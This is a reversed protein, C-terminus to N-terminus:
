EEERTYDWLDLIDKWITIVRTNESTNSIVSNGPSIGDSNPKVIGAIYSYGANKLKEWLVKQLTNGSRAEQYLYFIQFEVESEALEAAAQLRQLATKGPKDSKKIQEVAKVLESSLILSLPRISTKIAKEMTDMEFANEEHYVVFDISGQNSNDYRIFDKAKKLCLEAKEALVRVSTNYKAIVLGASLTTPTKESTNSLDKFHENFNEILYNVFKLSNVAPVIMFIDDGGVAICEFTSIGCKELAYYCSQVSATAAVRSFYAMQGLSEIKQIIGGMNNGDAYVVAIEDSIDKLTTAPIVDKKMQLSYRSMFTTKKIRGVQHKQLCSGCLNLKEYKLDLSYHSKRERCSDCIESEEPSVNCFSIKEDDLISSKICGCEDMPHISETLNYVKIRKRTNLDGEINRILEKYKDGFCAIEKLNSEYMVYANKLTPAYKRYEEEIKIALDDPADEPLLAMLNGGGSYIVLEPIWQETAILPAIFEGLWEILVSAGRMEKINNTELYYRKIKYPGGKLIKVKTQELMFDKDADPRCNLCSCNLAYWASNHKERNNNCFDKWVNMKWKNLNMINKDKELLFCFAIFLHAAELFPMHSVNDDSFWPFTSFERSLPKEATPRLLENIRDPSDITKIIKERTKALQQESASFVTGTISDKWTISNSESSCLIQEPNRKQVWSYWDVCNNV